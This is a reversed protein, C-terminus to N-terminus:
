DMRVKIVIKRVTQPRDSVRCPMHPENPWFIAFMGQKLVLKSMGPTYKYFAIDKQGDYPQDIELGNLQGFGICECGSVIYQIDLYNQHIEPRGEEFSKTQYEDVIYFLDKGQVENKGLAANRVSEEKLLSLGSTVREDLGNYLLTNDIYDFIM